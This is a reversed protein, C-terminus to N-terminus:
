VVADIEWGKRYERKVYRNADDHNTFRLAKSDWKLETEPFRTAVGGLLVAETLPGAYDFSASTKDEGRIADVFSGWHDRGGLKPYDYDKYQAAPLLKPAGVHPLLMIGKEGLFVSGQNPLRPKKNIGRAKYDAVLEKMVRDMVEKPPKADGDYWTVRVPDTTFRSGPFVYDIDANISWNHKNPKPGHSTVSIPAAVGLAGFVPDYIHCGMDGFTGTGFDLRKRWQGPHYYGGGIYPRDTAVGLWLNWDLNAPVPDKKDPRPNMDGWKKHSFTHVYSVKGIAGAQILQVALRYQVSSHVQIGMQTVLGSRAALNQLQRVEFVNQALPKQVYAHKGLQMAAIGIKAHMHDPTSVNVCDINKHEKDLLKRFDAYKAVDPWKKDVKDFRNRDVDCVAVLKWNKHRSLSSMDAWSMGNAGFAAHRVTENASAGRVLGPMMVPLALGMTSVSRVFTRRTLRQSM